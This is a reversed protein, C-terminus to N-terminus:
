SRVEPVTEMDFKKRKAFKNFNGNKSDLEESDYNEVFSSAKKEQGNMNKDMRRLRKGGERLEEVRTSQKRLKERITDQSREKDFSFVDNWKGVQKRVTALKKIM